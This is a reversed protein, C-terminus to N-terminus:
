AIEDLRVIIHRLVDESLKLRRELENLAPRELSAHLLVYHGEDYRNIPYALKRRGMMEEKVIEGGNETVTRKVTEVLSALGTEDLGPQAIFVVEYTRM